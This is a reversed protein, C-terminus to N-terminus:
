PYEAQSVKASEGFAGSGGGDAAGILRLYQVAGILTLKRVDIVVANMTTTNKTRRLALLALRVCDCSDKTPGCCDDASAPSTTGGYASAGPM